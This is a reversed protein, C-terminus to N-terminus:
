RQKRGFVQGHEPIIIGKRAMGLSTGPHPARNYYGGPAHVPVNKHAQRQIGLPFYRAAGYGMCDGPHSHKDKKISGDAGGRPKRYHWGGRLAYYVHSANNKDVQVVGRGNITRSLVGRLPEVREDVGQPGPRFRGGLQKTIVRAASNKSDGQDPTALNPDGDHQLIYGEYQSTLVPKVTDEVLQFMGIDEGVFSHLINWHGSPAIQSIVCTPTLGGDWLLCLPVGRVPKLGEALHLYDSWGPTVPRGVQQYGYQGTVFRRVLDPRHAWNKTLTAYYGPPLNALNEPERTQWAKYGSEQMPLLKISPDPPTGPKVFRRYTWHGEDPNNQALKIAYWKMGPQRLQGIATDFIFESVGSSEGAAGSPEDIAVGALPMSAIKSADADDEAGMFYVTGSLGTKATDWIYCKDGALYTGFVKDPFWTLFEKLTTRKINEFTDRIVLWNAGPNHRTHYFIAWVLGASKGEGKRSSFLDAQARSEIFARQIPNAIFEIKQSM